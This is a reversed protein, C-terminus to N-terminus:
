VRLSLRILEEATAADPHSSSVSNLSKDAAAHSMGLAELAALADARARANTSVATGSEDSGLAVGGLRDRLEVVLREATKRGVGPIRTLLDSQGSRIRHCLESTSLSSLAALALKPGVGSISILLNFLTREDRTSFGYLLLADERVHQYCLLHAPLGTEPLADFTSTPIMLRYGLGQIDIVVETPKKSTLTGSVYEIM